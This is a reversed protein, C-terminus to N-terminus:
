KTYELTSGWSDKQIHFDIELLCADNDYDDTGGTSTADRFVRCILMSSMTHGSGSITGLETLYHKDQVLPDDALHNTDGYIITTNGYTSGISAWTYELGWSVDHGAGGAVPPVWHVHCEIDTGQAWAHPLQMTFFLEEETAKDFYYAYVGTSAPGGGDDYLKAFGPQRAAGQRTATVPVREDDWYRHPAQVLTGPLTVPM